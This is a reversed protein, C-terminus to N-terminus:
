FDFCDFEMVVASQAEAFLGVLLLPRQAPSTAIASLTAKCISIM